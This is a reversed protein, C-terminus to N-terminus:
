CFGQCFIGQDCDTRRKNEFVETEGGKLDNRVLSGVVGEWLRQLSGEHGVGGGVFTRAIGDGIGRGCKPWGGVAGIDGKTGGALAATGLILQGGVVLPKRRWGDGFLITDITLHAFLGLEAPTLQPHIPVIESLSKHM